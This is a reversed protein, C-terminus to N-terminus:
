GTGSTRVLAEYSALPVSAMGLERDSRFNPGHYDSGGTPILNATEAIHNLEDRQHESYAGYYVEIGKLGLPILRDLVADIDGTSYPHALVPVARHRALLSVAQEPTFPERPVWGTQGPTLFWQFAEDVNAAAGIDILARAVHPRGISGHNAQALIAEGDLMYGAARLKHIM